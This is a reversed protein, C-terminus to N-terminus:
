GGKKNIILECYRTALFVLKRQIAINGCRLICVGNYTSYTPSGITRKDISVSTFNILPLNLEKSWYAKIKDPDQDARLHLECHMKNIDISYNKILINMFFKLILPDSNGIGTGSIKKFGEGLYLMALALELISQNNIDINSLVSLSKNKADKLRLLKQQNHWLVAKKRAKLLHSTRNQELKHKQKQSLQINKFWGSLTSRPINLNKEINRISKGEQRLAIAQLKLDFWKSYM